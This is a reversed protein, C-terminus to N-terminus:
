KLIYKGLTAANKQKLGNAIFSKQSTPINEKVCIQHAADTPREFIGIKRYTIVKEYLIKSM